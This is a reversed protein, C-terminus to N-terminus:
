AGVLFSDGIIWYGIGDTNEATEEIGSVPVNGYPKLRKVIEADAVEPLQLLTGPAVDDTFGVGNLNALNVLAAASGCHQIAVDLLTQGARLTITM